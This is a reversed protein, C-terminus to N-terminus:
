ILRYQMYSSQPARVIIFQEFEDSRAQREQEEIAKQRHIINTISDPDVVPISAAGVDLSKYESVWLKGTLYKFLLSPTPHSTKPTRHQLPRIYFFIQRKVYPPRTQACHSFTSNYTYTSSLPGHEQKQPLVSGHSLTFTLLSSFRDSAVRCTCRAWSERHIYYSDARILM